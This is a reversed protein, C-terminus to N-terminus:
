STSTEEWEPELDIGLGDAIRNYYAFMATIQVIQSIDRDDFGVARLRDLDERRRAWPTRTLAAVYDLM